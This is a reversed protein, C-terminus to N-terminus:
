RPGCPWPRPGNFTKLLRRLAATDGDVAPGTWAASGDAAIHAFSFREQLNDPRGALYITRTFSRRWREAQESPLSLAFRCTERVWDDLRFRNIVAVVSAEDRHEAASRDAIQKKAAQLCEPSSLDLDALDPRVDRLRRAATSLLLEPTLTM